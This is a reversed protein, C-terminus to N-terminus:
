RRAPAVEVTLTVSAAIKIRGSEIPTPAAAGPAGLRMAQAYLRPPPPTLTPSQERVSLVRVIKLGLAGAIAQADQRAELAARRLAETRVPGSDRLTFRINQLQNAGVRTAADIAAGIRRLDDLRVRVVNSATYGAVAPAAGSRYRYVPSVSYQLTTLRASSGVARRLASLVASVRRANRSVAEESSPARTSVGIDIYVRDPPQSVQARGTVRITAATGGPALVPGALATFCVTSLALVAFARM